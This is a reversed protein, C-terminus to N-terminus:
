WADSSAPSPTWVDLDPPCLYCCPQKRTQSEHERPALL